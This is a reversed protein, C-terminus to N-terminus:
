NPKNLANSAFIESKSLPSIFAIISFILFFVNNGFTKGRKYKRLVGRRSM